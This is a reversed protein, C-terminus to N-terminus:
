SKSMLCRNTIADLDAARKLARFQMVKVNIETVGMSLATGRVSLGLLFRYTLVECYRAPLSQLIAQVREATASASLISGEGVMLDEWGAEVFAELSHAAARRYHARWYDAM